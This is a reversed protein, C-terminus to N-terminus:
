SCMAIIGCGSDDTSPETMWEVSSWEDTQLQPLIEIAYHWRHCSAWNTTQHNREASVWRWELQRYFDRRIREHFTYGNAVQFSRDSADHALDASSPPLVEIIIRSTFSRLESLWSRLAALTPFTSLANNTVVITHYSRDSVAPLLGHTTSLGMQEHHRVVDRDWHTQPWPFPLTAATHGVILSEEPLGSVLVAPLEPQLGRAYAVKAHGTSTGSPTTERERLM